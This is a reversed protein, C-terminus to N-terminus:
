MPPPHRPDSVRGENSMVNYDGFADAIAAATIPGPRLIRPPEAMLDLVTSPQGGPAPGGDVILSVRGDLQARADTATRAPPQGSRNASTVALPAAVLRLLELALPHDPIRLGVTDGGATVIDPLASTKPLIITLPGPWFTGRLLIDWGYLSAAQTRLMKILFAPRLLRWLHRGM